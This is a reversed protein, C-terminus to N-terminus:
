WAPKLFGSFKKKIQSLLSYLNKCDGDDTYCIEDLKAKEENPKTKDKLNEFAKKEIDEFYDKKTEYEDLKRSYKGILRNAEQKMDFFLAENTSEYLGSATTKVDEIYGIRESLGTMYFSVMTITRRGGRSAAPDTEFQTLYRDAFTSIISECLEIKSEIKKCDRKQFDTLKNRPAQM